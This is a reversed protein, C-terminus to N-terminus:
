GCIIRYECNQCNFDSKKPAFEGRRIREVTEKIEQRIKKIAQQNRTTSVKQGQDVFYLSLASPELGLAERCALAYVTLQDDKDVEKQDRVKGTKYDIVEYGGDPLRDIRDIRGELRCDGLNVSFAKELQEPVSQRRSDLQHYSTLIRIGDQYRREEHEKSLYGVPIWNKQYIRLLDDLGIQRSKLLLDHYQYLTDHISKGFSTPHAPSEPIRLVYKFRYLRPCKEYDKLQSYSFRKIEPKVADMRREWQLSKVAAAEPLLGVGSPIARPQRDGLAEAIFSSPKSPRKATYMEAATLYLKERARTMGVYFLRREEQRHFDGPPLLEKVLASPLDIPDSKNDGPFRRGALQVMFVVSFELGKSSHVTSLSVVDVDEIEAQAPDDGAEQMLRFWEVFAKLSRDPSSSEFQNLRSFFLGINKLRLEEEVAEPFTEVRAYGTKRIFDLLVLSAPQRRSLELHLEILDKVAALKTRTGAAIQDIARFVEGSLPLGSPKEERQGAENEKGINVADNLSEYLPKNLSRSYNLLRFIDEMPISFSPLNLVRFLATNDYFDDLVYLYAILSKVEDLEYLGRNGALQYPIGRQKLASVFPMLHDNNRALVAFDRPHRGQNLHNEIEEAVWAAEDEATKFAAYDVQEGTTQARLKKSVQEKIELREPNNFQILNYAADLIQQTSRYNETLVITKAEPYDSRFQLINSISAGRFKYISQDDDGCVTINREPGVLLKLLQNQSYNTDQFEDVLLYKFRERYQALLSPRTRLAKLCYAQLDAFDLFGERLMLEQYTGYARAMELQIESEERRAEDNEGVGGAFEQLQNEAWALYREPSIDEDKARSIARILATLFRSPNALPRYHDLQFLFLNKRLLLWIEPESLIRYGTDLGIELGESRLFRECFSHFTSIWIEQHGIPLAADVRDSMERAAKETFTLALIQSPEAQKNSILHVIRETIVRTKGTGAGAIILLPGRGHEVAQKQSFNLDSIEPM